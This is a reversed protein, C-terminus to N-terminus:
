IVEIKASVAEKSAIIRKKSRKESFSIKLRTGVPYEDVFKTFVYFSDKNENLITLKITGKSVVEVKSVVGVFSTDSICYATTAVFLLAVLLIIKRM